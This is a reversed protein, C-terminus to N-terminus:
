SKAMTERRLTNTVIRDCTYQRLKAPLASSRIITVLVNLLYMTVLNVIDYVFLRSFYMYYVPDIHSHVYLFRFSSKRSEAFKAGDFKYSPFASLRCFRFSSSGLNVAFITM